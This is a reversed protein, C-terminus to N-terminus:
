LLFLALKILPLDGARGNYEFGPGSEHRLTRVHYLLGLLRRYAALPRVGDIDVITFGNAASSDRGCGIRGAAELEFQQLISYCGITYYHSTAYTFIAELYTCSCYRQADFLFYNLCTQFNSRSRLSSCYCGTTCRNFLAVPQTHLAADSAHLQLKLL